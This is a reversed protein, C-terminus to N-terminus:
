RASIATMMQGVLTKILAAEDSSIGEPAPQARDAYFLGLQNKGQVM